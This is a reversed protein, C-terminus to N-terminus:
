SPDRTQFEAAVAPSRLKWILWAFLISIGLAFAASVIRLFTQMREFQDHFNQPM